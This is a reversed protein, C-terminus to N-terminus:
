EPLEPRRGSATRALASFILVIVHKRDLNLADARALFATVKEWVEVWRDLKAAALLRTALAVENAAVSPAGSEGAGVRVLRAFWWVLLETFARFQPAANARGLREGLAHIASIDFRPLEGVLAILERFAGAGGLAALELARGVSGEALIALLARDQAVIEPHYRAVISAVSSEPLPQLTLKRCRSRITALLRGPAHAVLLLVGRPPPEELIKLLANAANRNLDDASDVIAIRWGSEAATLSFFNAIRRVDGVVIEERKRKRKEDYSPEVTLLDAHSGAAVRRFVPDSPEVKLSDAAIPQAAAFLGGEGGRNRGLVFRAFRYALTAKGIGRPGSLLYAHALKGTAWARHLTQEAATQGVLENNARPHGYPSDAVIPETDAQRAM